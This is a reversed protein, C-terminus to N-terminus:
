TNESRNPINVRKRSEVDVGLNNAETRILSRLAMNLCDLGDLDSHLQSNGHDHSYRWRVFANSHALLMINLDKRDYKDSFEEEDSIISFTGLGFSKNGLEEQYLINLREKIELSLSVYLEHLEHVYKHTGTELILLCKFYLETAFILNTSAVPILSFDQNSVNNDAFLDNFKIISQAGTDYFATANNFLTRLKNQDISM